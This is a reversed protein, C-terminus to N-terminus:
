PVTPTAPASNTDFGPFDSFPTVPIRTPDAQWPLRGAESALFMGYGGAVLTLVLAIGLISVLVSNNRVFTM